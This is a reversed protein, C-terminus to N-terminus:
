SIKAILKAISSKVEYAKDTILELKEYYLRQYFDQQFYEIKEVYQFSYNMILFLLIISLVNSLRNVLSIRIAGKKAKVNKVNRVRSNTAPHTSFITIFGSPGLLQLAIATDVGGCALAAQHDCRYETARSVHLKILNYSPIFIYTYFLRLISDIFKYTVFIFDRLFSGFFPIISFLNAIISFIIRIFNSVTSIAKENAMILLGPLFDRNALHSLEHAMIAKISSFFEQESETSEKYHVLIGLTLVVVNKKFSGIAYANVETSSAILLKTNAVKFKTQLDDFDNQIKTMIKFKKVLKKPTKHKRTMTFISLGFLLDISIYFLMLLSILFTVFFSFDIIAVGFHKSDVLILPTFLVLFPLTIILLNFVSLTYVLILSLPKSFM